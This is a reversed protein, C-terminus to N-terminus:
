SQCPNQQEPKPRSQSKTSMKKIKTSRSQGQDEVVITALSCWITPALYLCRCWFPDNSRSRFLWQLVYYIHGPWIIHKLTELNTSLNAEESKKESWRQGRNKSINNQPFGNTFFLFHLLTSASGTFNSTQSTVRLTSVPLDYTLPKLSIMLRSLNVLELFYM